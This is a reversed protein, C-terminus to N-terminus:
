LVVVKLVDVALEVEDKTRRHHKTKVADEVKVLRRVALGSRVMARMHRQRWQLLEGAIQAGATSKSRSEQGGLVKIYCPEKELTENYYNSSM